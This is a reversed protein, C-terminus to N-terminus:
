QAAAKAQIQSCCGPMTAAERHAGPLQAAAAASLPCFKGRIEEWLYLPLVTRTCYPAFRRAM